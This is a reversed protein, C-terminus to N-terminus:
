RIRVIGCGRKTPVDLIFQDDVVIPQIVTPVSFGPHFVEVKSKESMGKLQRVVVRVTANERALIVPMLFGGPITFLNVKVGDHRPAIVDSELVWKRGRMLEFLPGYDFYWRENDVTPQICHNNNPYPVTPFAGLYFHRQFFADSLRDNDDTWVLLPKRVCLLSAGNLVTPRNGFEDYLADLHEALDLRPHMFNCFIVKNQRHMIPGLRDMLLRWSIALSRAPAGNHWTVGDDANTNYDRLYDTRDICIGAADPLMTLHRNIQELLHDRYNPDGPDVEWGGQWAKCPPQVRARPARTMLYAAPDQWVSSARGKVPAVPEDKMDRGFETTNFYSLLNFGNSHLWHAYDNMRSFSTWRPKYDPPAMADVTRDWRDDMKRLPPLFMGMYAYDDSLKWAVRFGMRKLKDVDAPREDGTYAGLGAISDVKSTPPDFFDSYHDTMWNMPGRWDASHPVLNMTFRVTKGGGLRHGYRRFEVMGRKSIAFQMDIFVDKPSEILSMGLDEDPLMISTMPLTAIEGGTVESFDGMPTRGYSLIRDCFPQPMLPDNWALSEETAASQPDVPDQWATWIRASEPKPWELITSIPVSWFSSSSKLEIEWLISDRTPQFKETIVCKQQQRGVATRVFEVGGSRVKHTKTRGELRCGGLRTCAYVPRSPTKDGLRIGVIEGDQSLEIKFGNRGVEFAAAPMTPPAASNPGTLRADAWDAHDGNIGDGADDAILTLEWVNQLPISVQKAPTDNKMVGSHFVEVGDALVRFVVSSKGYAAIESDVGVWADFHQYRGDLDFVIRSNAHTGIGHTFKHGAIELPKNQVSRDIGPTAAFQQSVAIPNLESLWQSEAQAVSSFLVVAAAVATFRYLPDIWTQVTSFKM